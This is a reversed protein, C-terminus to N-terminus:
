RCCMDLIQLCTPQHAQLTVLLRQHAEKFLIFFGKIIPRAAKKLLIFNILAEQETPYFESDKITTAM